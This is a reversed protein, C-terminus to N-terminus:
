NNEKFITLIKSLVESFSKDKLKAIKKILLKKEIKALSEVKIFSEEFLKGEELISNNLNISYFDKSINSTIGCVIVDNSNYNFSDKSLILVPRIKSGTLNSFPFPVLFIERQKISIEEM